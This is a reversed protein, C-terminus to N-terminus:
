AKVLQRAPQGFSLKFRVSFLCYIIVGCFVLTLLHTHTVANYAFEGLRGVEVHSLNKLVDKISVLHTLGILAGLMVFGQPVGPLTVLRIAYAYYIRRM